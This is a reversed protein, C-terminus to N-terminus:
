SHYGLGLCSCLPKSVKGFKPEVFLASAEAVLTSEEEEISLTSSMSTQRSKMDDITFSNICRMQGTVWVKRGETKMIRVRYIYVRDPIMPKRYDINMNATMGVGTDFYMGACCAFADDFLIFPLGGHIYGVHGCLRSGVYCTAIVQHDQLSEQSTSKPSTIFFYPDTPLKQPMFFSDAVLHSDRANSRLTRYPRFEKYIPSNGSVQSDEGNLRLYRILPLSSILHDAQSQLRTAASRILNEAQPTTEAFCAAHESPQTETSVMTLFDKHPKRSRLNPQWGTSKKKNSVEAEL